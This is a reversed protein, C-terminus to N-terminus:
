NSVSVLEQFTPILRKEEARARPHHAHCLTIGNNVVYRLELFDAWRLIHHAELRGGCNNDAIRCSWGDRDKVQKRWQKQLPDHLNREGLKVKTRDKIWRPNFEGRLGIKSKHEETLKKGLHSKSIKNRVEESMIKGKNSNRIKEISEQSLVRGTMINIAKCSSSCFKATEKRYPQVGFEMQCQKCGVLVKEKKNVPSIGTQKGKNWPVIGKQFKGTAM